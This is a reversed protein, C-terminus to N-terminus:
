LKWDCLTAKDMKNQEIIYKIWCWTHYTKHWSTHTHTHTAGLLHEGTQSVKM